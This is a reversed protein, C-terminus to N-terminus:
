KREYIIYGNEAVVVRYDAALFARLEPFADTSGKGQPRPKITNEVILRPREAQLARMFKQRLGQIYPHRYHHYFYYDYIYPTALRAETLLLAQITGGTWDLPQIAEGPQVNLRRLDAVMADVQGQKPAAPPEGRLQGLFDPAVDLALLLFLAFAAIAFFRQAPLTRRPLRIIALAATLVVFYLFPLWHYKFFQGSFVPYISYALTLVGLLLAQRVVPTARRAVFLALYLGLVAPALWIALGGLAKYFRLLYLLRASGLVIAHNKDLQLYLPLYNRFLDVFAPWAGQQWVWVLVAAPPLVFGVAALLGLRLLRGFGTRFDRPAGQWVVYVLLLPLGIALHPKVTAALGFLLGLAVPAPWKQSWRGTALLLALAVPLLGIFDRQLSVDPGQQLYSLGFVVVAAWAVRRGFRRMFAWTVALLALLWATDIWRFAADGYGLLKGIALHFLYTGPLNTEFVDRYPAYGFRDILLAVYHLNPTDHVMRWDLALFLELGFLLTLPALLLVLLTKEWDLRGIFSGAPATPVTRSESM